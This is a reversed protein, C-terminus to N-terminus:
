LECIEAYDEFSLEDFGKGCWGINSVYEAVKEQLEEFTTIYCDEEYPEIRTYAAILKEQQEKTFEM